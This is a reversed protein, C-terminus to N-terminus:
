GANGVIVAQCRKEKVLKVTAETDIEFSGVPFETYTVVKADPFRKQLLRRILSFTDDYRFNGNSLECITKGGLTALRPAHQYKASQM